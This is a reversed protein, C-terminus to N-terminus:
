RKKKISRLNTHQKKKNKKMKKKQHKNSNSREFLFEENMCTFRNVSPCNLKFAVPVEIWINMLNKLMRANDVISSASVFSHCVM